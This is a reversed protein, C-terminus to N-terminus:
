PALQKRLVFCHPPNLQSYYNHMLKVVEFGQALYFRQAATNCSQVHLYVYALKDKRAQAIVSELLLSGLKSRRYEELVGLTLICLRYRRKASTKVKEVECCVAGIAARDATYALKCYGDPADTVYEYFADGYKVPFLKENIDHLQQVNETDVPRFSVGGTALTTVETTEARRSKSGASQNTADETCDMQVAHPVFSFSGARLFSTLQERLPQLTEPSRVRTALLVLKMRDSAPDPVVNRLKPLNLLHSQLQKAVKGAKAAEVRVGVVQLSRRMMSEPAADAEVLYTPWLFTALM